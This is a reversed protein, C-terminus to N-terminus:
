FCKLRTSKVTTWTDDCLFIERGEREGEERVGGREEREGGGRGDDMVKIYFVNKYICIM